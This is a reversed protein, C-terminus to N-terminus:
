NEDTKHQELMLRVFDDMLCFCQTTRYKSEETKHM